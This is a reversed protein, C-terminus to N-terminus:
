RRLDATVHSDGGSSGADVGAGAAPLGAEAAPLGAEPFPGATETLFGHPLIIGDVTRLTDVAHDVAHPSTQQLRLRVGLHEATRTVNRERLLVDLTVLLNLDLNVLLRDVAVRVGYARCRVPFHNGSSGPHAIRGGHGITATTGPPWTPGGDGTM